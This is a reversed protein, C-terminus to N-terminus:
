PRGFEDITGSVFVDLCFNLFLILPFALTGFFAVAYQVVANFDGSMFGAFAV